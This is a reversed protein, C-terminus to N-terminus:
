TKRKKRTDTLQPSTSAAKVEKLQKSASSSGESEEAQPTDTNVVLGWAFAQMRHLLFRGYRGFNLLLQFFFRQHDVLETMHETDSLVM